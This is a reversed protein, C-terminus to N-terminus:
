QYLESRLIRDLFIQDTTMRTIFDAGSENETLLYYWFARYTAAENAAPNNILGFNNFAPRDGFGNAASFAEAQPGIHFLAPTFPDLSPTAPIGFLDRINTLQQDRDNMNNPVFVITLTLRNDQTTTTILNQLAQFKAGGPGFISPLRSLVLVVHLSEEGYDITALSEPAVPPLPPQPQNTPYATFRPPTASRIAPRNLFLHEFFALLDPGAAWNIVDNDEIEINGGPCTTTASNPAAGNPMRVPCRQVGGLMGVLEAATLPNQQTGGETFGQDLAQARGPQLDGLRTEPDPYLEESEFGEVKLIERLRGGAQPVNATAFMTSLAPRAAYLGYCMRLQAAYLVDPINNATNAQGLLPRLPTRWRPGTSGDPVNPARISTLYPIQLDPTVLDEGPLRLLIPPNRLLSDPDVSSGDADDSLLYLGTSFRTAEHRAALEVITQAIANRVLLHPNVCNRILEQRGSTLWLNRDLNITPVEVGGVMPMGQVPFDGTENAYISNNVPGGNRLPNILRVLENAFARGQGGSPWNAGATIPGDFVFRDGGGSPNVPHHMWVQPAIAIILRRNEPPPRTQAGRAVLPRAFTTQAVITKRPESQTNEGDSETSFPNRWIGFWTDVEAEVRCTVFQGGLNQYGDITRPPPVTRGYDSEFRSIVRVGSFDRADEQYAEFRGGGADPMTPVVLTGTLRTIGTIKGLEVMERLGAEFAAYARGQLPAQEKVIGCLEDTRLRLVVATSRVKAVDYGIILAGAVLALLLTASSPLYVGRSSM